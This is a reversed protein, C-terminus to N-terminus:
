VEDEIPFLKMAKATVKAKAIPRSEPEYHYLGRHRRIVELTIGTKTEKVAKGITITTIGSSDVSFGYTKGLIVEDGLADTKM